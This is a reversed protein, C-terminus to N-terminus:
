ASELNDGPQHNREVETRAEESKQQNEEDGDRREVKVVEPTLRRGVVLFVSSASFFRESIPASNMM